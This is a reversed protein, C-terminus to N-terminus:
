SKEKLLKERLGAIPPFCKIKQAIELANTTHLSSIEIEFPYRAHVAFPSLYACEKAIENFSQDFDSCL